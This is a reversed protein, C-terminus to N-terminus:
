DSLHIKFSRQREAAPITQLTETCVTHGTPPWGRQALLKMPLIAVQLAPAAARAIAGREHPHQHEWFCHTTDTQCLAALCQLTLPFKISTVIDHSQLHLLKTTRACTRIPIKTTLSPLKM